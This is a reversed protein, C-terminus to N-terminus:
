SLWILVTPHQPVRVIDNAEFFANTRKSYHVRCNDLHAHLRLAHRNSREPYIKQVLPVMVQKVFYESDFGGAITKLDVVHFGDVGWM